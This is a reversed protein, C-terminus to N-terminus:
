LFNAPSPLLLRAAATEQERDRAVKIIDTHVPISSKIVKIKNNFPAEVFFFESIIQKSRKHHCIM